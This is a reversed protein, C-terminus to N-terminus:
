FANVDAVSALRGQPNPYTKVAGTLTDTVTITYEVDSLAGYFVWFKGNVPRGDVVKILLEVNNPSFFWVYGSDVTLPAATGVGSMGQSAVRWSVQVQFRSTNLCLTTTGPTCATFQGAILTVAFNRIRGITGVVKDEVKLTWVGNAQKGQFVSLFQAPADTKGYIANIPHQSQGTRDQLIASTGDPGILTLRLQAPEPHDIQVWAQVGALPATFGSIMTTVTASDAGDPIAVPPGAYAAFSSAALQVAALTDIRPTVVGNRTDTIPKGTARLVGAVAGPSLDPRAQRLLAVAGAAAPASASTGAFRTDIGGGKTVVSWFAGPGLLSLTSASDSFCVIRDPTALPDTCFVAGSDDLWSVRGYTDSYVAGVSVASSLCAPAALSNALGGNGAAAVVVIGAATAADIANAYAVEIQDCYGHDQSDDFESGISLNIATIGFTARNTMAYNIAQLIDSTLAERKCTSGQTSFVKLAVIKAAPAVGTPGAIVAAVSTGHGDCDMPDNRKDATDTGGIVKANPFSGGGLAPVTYDVGTDIVAVTQGAGNYGLTNAVDSRILLQASQPTTQFLRNSGDVTVWEVDARNALEIAGKRSVIAALMSFSEYFHRARFEGPPMEEGLRRQAAIRRLRREREGEPDPRLLLARASPTGDNLGVIVRVEEDGRSLARLLRSDAKPADAASVAAAFAPAALFLSLFFVALAISHRRM